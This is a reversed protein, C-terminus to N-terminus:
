KKTGTSYKITGDKLMQPTVKFAVVGKKGNADSSYIEDGVKLASFKKTENKMIHISASGEKLYIDSGSDNFISVSGKQTSGNDDSKATSGEASLSAKVARVQELFMKAEGEEAFSIEVPMAGSIQRLGDGRGCILEEFYYQEGSVIQFTVKNIKQNGNMWDFVGTAYTTFDINRIGVHWKKMVTVVGQNDTRFVTYIVSDDKVTAYINRTIGDYDDLYTVTKKGEAIMKIGDCEKTDQANAMIASCMMAATAIILKM